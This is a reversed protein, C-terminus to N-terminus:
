SSESNGLAESGLNHYIWYKDYDYVYIKKGNNEISSDPLSKAINKGDVYNCFLQVGIYPGSEVTCVIYLIKGKQEYTNKAVYGHYDPNYNIDYGTSYIHKEALLPVSLLCLLALLLYKM